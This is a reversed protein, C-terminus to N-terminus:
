RRTPRQQRRGRRFCLAVVANPRDCERLHESRACYRLGLLAAPTITSNAGIEARPRVTPSRHRDRAGRQEAIAGVTTQYSTSRRLDARTEPAEVELIATIGACRHDHAHRPRARLDLPNTVQKRRSAGGIVSWRRGGHRERDRKGGYSSERTCKSRAAASCGTPNAGSADGSLARNTNFITEPQL